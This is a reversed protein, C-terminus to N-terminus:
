SPFIWSLLIKQTLNPKKNFGQSNNITVILNYNLDSIIKDCVTLRLVNFKMGM